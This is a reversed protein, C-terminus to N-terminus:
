EPSTNILIGILNSTLAIQECNEAEYKTPKYIAICPLLGDYDVPISTKYQFTILQSTNKNRNYFKPHLDVRVDNDEYKILNALYDTMNNGTYMKNNQELFVVTGYQKNLEYLVRAIPINDISGM